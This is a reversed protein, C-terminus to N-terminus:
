QDGTVCDNTPHLLEQVSDRKRRNCTRCLVRINEVSTPGGQDRPIIHDFEIQDDRVTKHCLQCRYDDRRAVKFMIERPIYRGTRRSELTETTESHYWFVPCSHGDRTRCEVDKPDYQQMHQWVDPDTWLFAVVLSWMEEDDRPDTSTLMRRIRLHSAKREELTELKMGYKALEGTPAPLPM